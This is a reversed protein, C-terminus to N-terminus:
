PDRNWILLEKATQSRGGGGVTYQITLERFPLGAFVERMLTHDGVSIVMRGKVTRALEAMREYQDPGFPVGYGTTRWYPPDLYFVTQPRDYRQVCEVWELREIVAKSLRIHAESM